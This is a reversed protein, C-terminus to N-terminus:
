TFIQAKNSVRFINVQFFEMCLHLELNQNLDPVKLKVKGTEM